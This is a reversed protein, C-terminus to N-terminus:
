VNGGCMCKKLGAESIRVKPLHSVYSIIGVIFFIVGFIIAIRIRKAKRRRRLLEERQPLNNIGM